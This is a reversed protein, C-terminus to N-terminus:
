EERLATALDLRRLRRSPLYSALLSLGLVLIAAGALVLPDSASAHFLLPQLYRAFGLALALGTAVGLGGITLGHRLALWLVNRWQAGLALRMGM